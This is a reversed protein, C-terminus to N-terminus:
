WVKTNALSGYWCPGSCDCLSLLSLSNHFQQLVNKNVVSIMVCIVDFCVTCKRRYCSCWHKQQMKPNTLWDVAIIHVAKVNESLCQHVVKRRNGATQRLQEKHSTLLLRWAIVCSNTFMIGSSCWIKHKWKSDQLSYQDLIIASFYCWRCTSRNGILRAEM